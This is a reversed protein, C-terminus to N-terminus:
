KPSKSLFKNTFERAQLEDEKLKAALAFASDFRVMGRIRRIFDLSLSEGYFDDDFDFIYTEVTLYQGKFTPNNGISTMAPLIKGRLTALVAYVGPGPILQEVNGLNATPFGLTRGRKQGSIVEGTIRYSRGLLRVASEVHGMKLLGRIHSSSYIEGNKAHQIEVPKILAGTNKAWAALQEFHGEANRGFRFDTGIFIEVPQVRPALVENLFDEAEYAALESNFRLCGLCDLGMASLIDKKQEFTTLIAPAYKSSLVSLPHPEFTILLSEVGLAVARSLVQNILYQHGLHLGDFVGITLVAPSGPVPADKLWDSILRM